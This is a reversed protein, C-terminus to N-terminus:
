PAPPDALLSEATLPRPPTWGRIASRALFLGLVLAGLALPAAVFLAIQNFFPEKPPHLHASGVAIALLIAWVGCVAVASWLLQARRRGSMPPHIGIASVIAWIGVIFVPFSSLAAGARGPALLGVPALLWASSGLALVAIARWVDEGPTRDAVQWVAWLSWGLQAPAFIAFALVYLTGDNQFLGVITLGAPLFLATALQTGGGWYRRETPPTLPKNQM